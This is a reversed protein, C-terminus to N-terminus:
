ASAGNEREKGKHRRGSSEAAKGARRWRFRGPWDNKNESIGSIGSEVDKRDLVSGAADPESQPQATAHGAQVNIIPVDSGFLSTWKKFDHWGRLGKAKWKERAVAIVAGISVIYTLLSVSVLAVKYEWKTEAAAKQFIDLAFVTSIFTPPLYLVTVVTFILVYRGMTSSSNTERLASANFLGDRLSEVEATKYAIRDLLNKEAKRQTERVLEWNLRLVQLEDKRMELMPFDDDKLFPDDLLRLDDSVTGIYGSFKHLIQLITFYLRSREFNDDFMWQDMEEPHLTQSFQFNLCDDIQDLVKTWETEWVEVGTLLAIQFAITGELGARWKLGYSDLDGDFPTEGLVVVSYFAPINANTGPTQGSLHGFVSLRREEFYHPSVRLSEAVIQGKERHCLLGGTNGSTTLKEVASFFRFHAQLKWGDFHPSERDHYRHYPRWSFESKLNRSPWLGAFVALFYLATEFDDQNFDLSWLKSYDWRSIQAM